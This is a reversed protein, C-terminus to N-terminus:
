HPDPMFRSEPFKSSRSKSLVGAKVIHLTGPLYTPEFFVELKMKTLNKEHSVM